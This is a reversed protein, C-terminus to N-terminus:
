DAPKLDLCPSPNQFQALPQSKKNPHGDEVEEEEMMAVKCNNTSLLMKTPQRDSEHRHVRDEIPWRRPERHPLSGRSGKLGKQGWNEPPVEPRVYCTRGLLGPQKGLGKREKETKQQSM